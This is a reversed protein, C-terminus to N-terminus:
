RAEWNELEEVKALFEDVEDPTVGWVKMYKGRDPDDRLPRGNLHAHESSVSRYFVTGCGDEEFLRIIDARRTDHERATIECFTHNDFM